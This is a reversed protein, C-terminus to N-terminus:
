RSEAAGSRARHRLGDEDEGPGSVTQTESTGRADVLVVALLAAGVEDLARLASRSDQTREDTDVVLVVADAVAAVQQVDLGESDDIQVVVTEADGRIRQLAAAPNEHKERLEDISAPARDPETGLGRAATGVRALATLLGVAVAHGSTSVSRGTVLVCSPEPVTSTLIAALRRMTSPDLEGTREGPRAVLCAVGLVREVEDQHRLRRPRQDRTWALLSGLLLGVGLGSALWVPRPPSSPTTPLSASSVVRGAGVQTTDLALLDNRLQKLEDALLGQRDEVGELDSLDDQVSTVRAAIRGKLATARDDLYANAIADAGAKAEAASASTMSIELVTTNPPVTVSIRKAIEGADAGALASGSRTAQAIVSSSRVLQAETDVQVPVPNGVGTPNVLVRSSGTYTEPLGLPALLGVAAGLLLGIGIAVAARVVRRRRGSPYDDSWSSVM